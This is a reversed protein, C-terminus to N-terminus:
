INFNKSAKVRAPNLEWSVSLEKPSNNLSLPKNATFSRGMCLLKRENESLLFVRAKSLAQIMDLFPSIPGIKSPSIGRKFFHGLFQSQNLFCTRKFPSESHRLILKQSPKKLSFGKFIVGFYLAALPM